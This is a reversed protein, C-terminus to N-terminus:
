IGLNGRYKGDPRLPFEAEPIPNDKRIKGHNLSYEIMQNYVEIPFNDMGKHTNNDIEDTMQDFASTEKTSEMQAFHFNQKPFPIINASKESQQTYNLAAQPM